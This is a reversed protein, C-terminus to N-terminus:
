VEAPVEQEGETQGNDDLVAETTDETAADISEETNVTSESEQAYVDDVNEVNDNTTSVQEKSSVIEYVARKEVTVFSFNDQTGTKITVTLDDMAVIEGVILGITKVKAGIDMQAMKEEYAKREKKNRLFSPVILAVLLLGFILLMVWSNNGGSSASSPTSETLLSFFSM